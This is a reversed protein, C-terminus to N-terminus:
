LLRLCKRSFIAAADSTKLAGSRARMSAAQGAPAIAAHDLREASDKILARGKRSAAEKQIMTSFGGAPVQGGFSLLVCVPSRVMVNCRRRNRCSAAAVATM